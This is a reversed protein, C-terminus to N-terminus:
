KLALKAKREQETRIGAGFVKEFFGEKVLRDVTGNDVVTRFDFKKMLAIMQPDTQQDIVAQIAGRLVYPVRELLNANKYIDYVREVDAQAQPDYKMYAKVAFAKDDYFRKVAEAQAKILLEPLKPNAAVTTKKMVYMTSAFIDDHEALNALNKFGREELKFYAPPTLMTADARGSDLAAVRGNADTGIPVWLVDRPGIGFKRLLASGYNYPPDGIQGVAIRKGKLEKLSGIDKRAMMAFVAKSLSNGVMVLSGDRAAAQMASELSYSSMQAEGSIVMAIGAPHLAFVLNADLGYKEFYGGEKALFQPWSAGSRTPFNITTKQLQQPEAPESAAVIFLLTLASLAGLKKM